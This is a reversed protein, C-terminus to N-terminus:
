GKCNSTHVFCHTHWDEQGVVTVMVVVVKAEGGKGVLGVLGVVGERAEVVVMEVKVAGVGAVM